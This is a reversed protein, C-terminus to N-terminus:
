VTKFKARKKQSVTYLRSIKEGTYNVAAVLSFWEPRRKSM